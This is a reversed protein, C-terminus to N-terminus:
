VLLTRPPRELGAPLYGPFHFNLAPFPAETGVSAPVSVEAFVLFAGGVCCAACLSCTVAGHRDFKGHDAADADPLHKSGFANTHHHTAHDHHHHEASAGATAGGDAVAEAMTRDHGPACTVMTAAFTGKLPVAMVLLCITLVRSLGRM